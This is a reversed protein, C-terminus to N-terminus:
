DNASRLIERGDVLPNVEVLIEEITQADRTGSPHIHLMGGKPLERCYAEVLGQARVRDLDVVSTAIARVRSEAIVGSQRARLQALDADDLRDEPPPTLWGEWE